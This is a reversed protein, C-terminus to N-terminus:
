EKTAKLVFFLSLNLPLFKPYTKIQKIRLNDKACKIIKKHDSKHARISYHKHKILNHCFNTLRNLVPAGIIIQAGPQAVRGIEKFAQATDEVFELVSLCLIGDYTNDPLPMKLVDAKLLNASINKSRIINRVTDIHNHIDIATLKESRDALEPLFIGSGFGIELFNNYKKNGMLQLVLKLRKLYLIKRLPKYYRNLTFVNQNPRTRILAELDKKSLLHM